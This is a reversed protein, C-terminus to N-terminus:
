NNYEFNFSFEGSTVDKIVWNGLEDQTNTKKTIDESTRVISVNSIGKESLIAEFYTELMKIRDNDSISNIYDNVLQVKQENTMLDTYGNIKTIDIQSKILEFIKEKSIVVKDQNEIKNSTVFEIYDNIRQNTTMTVNAKVLVLIGIDGNSNYKFGAYNREREYYIIQNKFQIGEENYVIEGDVMNVFYELSCFSYRAEILIELIDGHYKAQNFLQPSIVFELGSFNNKLCNDLIVSLDEITNVVRSYSKDNVTLYTQEYYNYNNPCILIDYIYRNAFAKHTDKIDEDSLLFYMHSSEEEDPVVVREVYAEYRGDIIAHNKQLYSSGESDGQMETWTIDVVYWNGDIEVKNWAHGGETTTGATGVVRVCNIGEMNCLLAFAKSYGDCVSLAQNSMFVAELYYCMFQMPNTNGGQKFASYDYTTNVMIYDFISLVKEYNTMDDSIIDRLIEKAKAYIINARSDSNKIIPTVHSSVAWFLEESSSVETSLFWDDSVFDDYDEDRKEYNTTTNYYPEYKDDQNYTKTSAGVGTLQPENLLFKSTLTFCNENTTSIKFPESLHPLGGSAFGYTEYYAYGVIYEDAKYEDYSTSAFYSDEYEKHFDNDVMFSIEEIRYIFAYYYINQLEYWNEIYHDYVEGDFIYINDTYEGYKNDDIPNFYCLKKSEYNNKDVVSSVKIALVDNSIMMENTIILKTEDCLYDVIGLTNSYISVLYHDVQTYKVPKSWSIINNEVKIDKPAFNSDYLYKTTAINKDLYKSATGMKVIVAESLDSDAFKGSGISKVQFRYEGFEGVVSSYNYSYQTKDSDIEVDDIKSENMYIEYKSADYDTEWSIINQNKNLSVIPTKLKSSAFFKCGTLSASTIIVVLILNLFWNHKKM